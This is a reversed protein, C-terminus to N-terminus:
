CRAGNPAGIALWLKRARLSSFHGRRAQRELQKYTLGLDALAAKMAREYEDRTVEFVEVDEADGRPLRGATAMIHRRETAKDVVTHAADM